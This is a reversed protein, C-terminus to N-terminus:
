WLQIRGYMVAAIVALIVMVLAMKLLRMNSARNTATLQGKLQSIQNKTQKRNM